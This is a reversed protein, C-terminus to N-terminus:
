TDLTSNPLTSLVSDFFNFEVTTTQLLLLLGPYTYGNLTLIYVLIHTASAAFQPFILSTPVFGVYRGVGTRVYGPGAWAPMAVVRGAVLRPEDPRQRPRGQGARGGIVSM